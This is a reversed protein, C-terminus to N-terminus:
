RLKKNKNRKISYLIVNIDAFPILYKLITRLQIASTLDTTDRHMTLRRRNLFRSLSRSFLLCFGFLQIVTIKSFSRQQPNM